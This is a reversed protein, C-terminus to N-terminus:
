RTVSLIAWKWGDSNVDNNKLNWMHTHPPSPRGNGSETKFMFKVMSHQFAGSLSLWARCGKGDRLTLTKKFRNIKDYIHKKKLGM